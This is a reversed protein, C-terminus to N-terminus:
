RSCSSKASITTAFSCRRTTVSAKTLGVRWQRNNQNFIESQVYNYGGTANPDKNPATYLKALALMSPDICKGDPHGNCMPIQTAGSRPWAPPMQAAGAAKGIRNEHTSNGEATSPHPSFDGSLLAPTPVTARLLGTDLTQHYYEFGTFFFLKDRNKNLGTGPILM